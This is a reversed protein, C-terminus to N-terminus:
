CKVTKKKKGLTGRSKIKEIYDAAFPVKCATGNMDVKIMGIKNATSVADDTLPSIYTGAAIIFCNMAYRARHPASHITKEVVKLLKKFHAIDLEADPKLAALNSLTSWGAAAIHEKPDSIWKLGVEYGHHSGAAVWPM